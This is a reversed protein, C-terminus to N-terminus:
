GIFGSFCRCLGLGADCRGNGACVRGRLLKDGPDVAGGRLCQKSECGLGYFTDDCTCQGTTGDSTLVSAKGDEADYAIRVTKAM